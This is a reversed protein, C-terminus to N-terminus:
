SKKPNLYLGRTNWSNMFFVTKTQFSHTEGKGEAWSEVFWKQYHVPEM